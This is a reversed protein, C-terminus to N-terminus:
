PSEGPMQWSERLTSDQAHLTIQLNANSIETKLFFNNVYGEFSTGLKRLEDTIEVGDKV